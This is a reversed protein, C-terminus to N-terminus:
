FFLFFRGPMQHCQEAVCICLKIVLSQTLQFTLLDSFINFISGLGHGNYVDVTNQSHSSDCPCCLQKCISCVCVTKGIQLEANSESNFSSSQQSTHEVKRRSQLIHEVFYQM